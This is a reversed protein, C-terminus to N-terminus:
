LDLPPLAMDHSIIIKRVLARKFTYKGSTTQIELTSEGFYKVHGTHRETNFVGIEVIDRASYVNIERIITKQGHKTDIKIVGDLITQIKGQVKEGSELIILDDRPLEFNVGFWLNVLTVLFLAKAIM